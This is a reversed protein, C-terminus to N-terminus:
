SIHRPPEPKHPPRPYQEYPQRWARYGIATSLTLLAIPVAAFALRWDSVHRPTLLIMVALVSWLALLSTAIGGIVLVRDRPNREALFPQELEHPFEAVRVADPEIDSAETDIALGPDIELSESLEQGGLALWVGLSGHDVTEVQSWPIAHRDRSLPLTPLEVLLWLEGGRDVLEFVNGVREGGRDYVSYGELGHAEEVARPVEYSWSVKTM